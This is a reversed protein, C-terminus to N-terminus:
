NSKPHASLGAQISEPTYREEPISAKRPSPPKTNLMEDAPRPTDQNDNLISELGSFKYNLFATAGIIGLTIVTIGIAAAFTSLLSLSFTKSLFYISTFSSSFIILGIISIGATFSFSKLATSIKQSLSGKNKSSFVSSIIKQDADPAFQRTKFNYAKKISKLLRNLFRDEPKTNIKGGQSGTFYTTIGVASSLDMELFTALASTIGIEFSNLPKQVRSIEQSSDCTNKEGFKAFRKCGEKTLPDLSDDKIRAHTILSSTLPDAERTQTRAPKLREALAQRYEPETHINSQYETMASMQIDDSGIYIPPSEEKAEAQTEATIAPEASKEESIEEAPTLVKVVERFIIGSALIPGNHAHTTLAQYYSICTKVINKNNEIDVTDFYTGNLQVLRANHDKRAQYTISNVSQLIRKQATEPFTSIEEKIHAEWNEILKNMGHYLTKIAPSIAKHIKDNNAKWKKDKEEGKGEGKGEETWFNEKRKEELSKLFDQDDIPSPDETKLLDIYQRLYDLFCWSTGSSETHIDKIAKLLDTHGQTIESEPFYLEMWIKKQEDTLDQQYLKQNRHVLTHLHRLGTNFTENDQNLAAFIGGLFHIPIQYTQTPQFLHGYSKTIPNETYYATPTGLLKLGDVFTFFAQKLRITNINEEGPTIGVLDLCNSTILQSRATQTKIFQSETFKSRFPENGNLIWLNIAENGLLDPFIHIRYKQNLQLLHHYESLQNHQILALILELIKAHVQAGGRDKLTNILWPLLSNAEEGTIGKLLANKISSPNKNWWTTVGSRGLTGLGISTILQARSPIMLKVSYFIFDRISKDIPKGEDNTLRSLHSFLDADSIDKNYLLNWGQSVLGRQKGTLSKDLASRYEPRQTKM